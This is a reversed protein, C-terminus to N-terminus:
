SNSRAKLSNIKDGKTGQKAGHKDLTAAVDEYGMRKAIDLPTQGDSDRVNVKAGNALLLKVMALSNAQYADRPKTKETVGYTREKLASIGAAIHLPTRRYPPVKHLRRDPNSSANVDAGYAILLKVLDIRGKSIAAHLPTGGGTLKVNVKAGAQLLLKVDQINGGNKQTWHGQVSRYLPTRNEEDRVNVDAGNELLLKILKTNKYQSAFYLPTLGKNNKANVDAGKSILVKASNIFRSNSVQSVKHLPTEGTNDRVNVEMGKELLFEATEGSNGIGARAAALDCGAAAKHLATEGNSDRSYISAGEKLLLEVVGKKDRRAACLLATGGYKYQQEIDVGKKIWLKALEINGNYAAPHLVSFGDKSIAKFDAGNKLLVKAAETKSALLLPTMGYKNRAEIDAGHSILLEMVAVHGRTSAWHLPTMGDITRNILAPNKKLLEQLRPLNGTQVASMFHSNLIMADEDSVTKGTRVVAEPAAEVYKGSGTCLNSPILFVLIFALKEMEFEAVHSKQGLGRLISKVSFSFCDKKINNFKGRLHLLNIHRLPLNVLIKQRNKRPYRYSSARVVVSPLRLLINEV